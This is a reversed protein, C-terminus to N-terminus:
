SSVAVTLIGATSIAFLFASFFGRLSQCVVALPLAILMRKILFM